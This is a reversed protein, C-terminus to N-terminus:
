LILGAYVAMIRLRKCVIRDPSLSVIPGNEFQRLVRGVQSVEIEALPAQYITENINASHGMHKYFHSPQSEPIELAAYLTSIKHRMKTATLLQPDQVGASKCIKNVALWGYVHSSSQQTSPFLYPNTAQIGCDHRTQADCLKDMAPMLDDPVLFPVLHMGKGIQYLVKMNQFLLREEDDM